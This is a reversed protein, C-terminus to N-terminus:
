EEAEDDVLTAGVLNRMGRRLRGSMATSSLGIVEAVENLSVDRPEGFYGEEYAITLATRQEATLGYSPEGGTESNGYIEIIDLAIDNENAYEWITNLAARDPLLLRVLWGHRKTETHVLFGNVDTVVTSILKTEPTHEIYYIGTRDTWDVLEYNDVTPDEELAAELEGRDDYEILFPFVTSGPDTNGQTIVRIDVDELTRLTPVLALREHEIYVKATISM